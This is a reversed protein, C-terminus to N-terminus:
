VCALLKEAAIADEVTNIGLTSYAPVMFARTKVKSLLPLFNSEGTVSGKASSRCLTCLAERSFFFVGCDTWMPAFSCSVYDRGTFSFGAPPTDLERSECTSAVELEANLICLTYARSVMSVPVFANYDRSPSGCLARGMSLFKCDLFLTDGWLVVVHTIDPALAELGLRVADGMGLSVPQTVLVTDCHMASHKAIADKHKPSVVIIKQACWRFRYLIIDLPTSGAIPYLCKPGDFNLRSGRGAAPIIAAWKFM